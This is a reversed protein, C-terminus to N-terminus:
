ALRTNSAPLAVLAGGLLFLALGVLALSGPEPAGNTTPQSYDHGSEAVLIFDGRPRLVANSTHLADGGFTCQSAVDGAGSTCQGDFHLDLTLEIPQLITVPLAVSDLLTLPSGPVTNGPIAIVQSGPGCFSIDPDIVTTLCDNLVLSGITGGLFAFIQYDFFGSANGLGLLNNEFTLDVILDALVSTGPLLGSGAKPTPTIFDDWSADATAGSFVGTLFNDPPTLGNGAGAVGLLGFGAFAAASADAHSGDSGV